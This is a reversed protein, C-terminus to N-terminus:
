HKTHIHIPTPRAISKPADLARDTTGLALELPINLQSHRPLGVLSVVNHLASSEGIVQDSRGFPLHGELVLLGPHTQRNSYRIIIGRPM